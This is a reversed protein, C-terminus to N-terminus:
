PKFYRPAAVEKLLYDSGLESQLVEKLEKIKQSLADLEEDFNKGPDIFERFVNDNIGQENIYRETSGDEDYRFLMYKYWDLFAQEKKSEAEFFLINWLSQKRNLADLKLAPAPGIKSPKGKKEAATEADDIEWLVGGNESGFFSKHVSRDLDALGDVKDLQDLHGAQLAELLRESKEKEQTASMGALLASLGDSVRNGLAVVVDKMDTHIYEGEPSWQVGQVMGCCITRDLSSVDTAEEVVWGFDRLLSVTDRKKNQLAEYLPNSEKDSYWGVVVYSLHSSGASYDHLDDLDDHFGFVNRCNPYYISFSPEGYGIATLPAFRETGSATDGDGDWEHLPVVKGMYRYPIKEDAPWPISTGKRYKTETSLFDSEVIWSRSKCQAEEESTQMTHFRTVLWRNPVAPFHTEDNEDKVYAQSLADPLFWHLHVGKDINGATQFPKNISRGSVFPKKNDASPLDTSFTATPPSFFSGKQSSEEEGVCLVHVRVPVILSQGADM